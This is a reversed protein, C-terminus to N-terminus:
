KQKQALEAMLHKTPTIRYQTKEFLNRTMLVLCRKIRASIENQVDENNPTKYYESLIDLVDKVAFYIRDNYEGWKSGPVKLGSLDGFNPYIEEWTTYKRPNLVMLDLRAKAKAIQQEETVDRPTRLSLWGMVSRLFSKIVNDFDIQKVIFGRRKEQHNYVFYM